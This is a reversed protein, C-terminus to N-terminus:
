ATGSSVVCFIYETCLIITPNQREASHLESLLRANRARFKIAAICCSSLAPCESGLFQSRAWPRHLEASRPLAVSSLKKIGFKLVNFQVLLMCVSYFKM